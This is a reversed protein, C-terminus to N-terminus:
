SGVEAPIGTMGEPHPARWPPSYNRETPRTDEDNTTGLDTICAECGALDPEGCYRNGEGVLNIRPCFWSYDHIVVEYPIKLQTFLGLLAHDHGVLHHVEARIPRDKKLLASVLGGLSDGM